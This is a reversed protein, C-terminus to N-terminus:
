NGTRWGGGHVIIIAIRKNGNQRKLYFADMLFKRSGITCYTINKEEAISSSHIENVIKAEPNSKITGAYASYLSYTTDPKGTIGKTSQPFGNFHLLFLLIVISSKKM